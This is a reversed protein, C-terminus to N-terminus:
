GDGGDSMGDSDGDRADDSADSADSADSSADSADVAADEGTPPPSADATTGGDAGGSADPGMVLSSDIGADATDPPLPQPNLSCAWVVAAGSCLLVLSLVRLRM